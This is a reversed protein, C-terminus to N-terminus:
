RASRPNYRTHWPWPSCCSRGRPGPCEAGSHAPKVPLNATHFHPKRFKVGRIDLVADPDVALKVGLLAVAVDHQGLAVLEDVVLHNGMHRHRYVFVGLVNKNDACAVATYHPFQGAVVAHLADVKHLHVRLDDFGATGIQGAVGAAHVVAAYVNIVLVRQFKDALALFLVVEDDHIGGVREARRLPQEGALKVAVAEVRQARVADHDVLLAAGEISLVRGGHLAAVLADGAGERDALHILCVDRGKRRAVPQEAKGAFFIM